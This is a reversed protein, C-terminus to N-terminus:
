GSCAVCRRTEPLARLRDRGVAGGCSECTGYTGQAIRQLAADIEVIERAADSAVEHALARKRSALLQAAEVSVGM